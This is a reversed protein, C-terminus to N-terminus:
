GFVAEGLVTLWFSLLLFLSSLSLFSNTFIKMESFKKRKRKRKRRWEVCSSPWSSAMIGSHFHREGVRTNTSCFCDRRSDYWCLSVPLVCCTELETWNDNSVDFYLLDISKSSCHIFSNKLQSTHTERDRHLCRSSLFFSRSWWMDILIVRSKDSVFKYCCWWQEWTRERDFVPSTCRQALHVAHRTCMFFIAGDEGIARAGRCLSECRNKDKSEDISTHLHSTLILM